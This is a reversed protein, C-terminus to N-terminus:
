HGMVQGTLAAVVRELAMGRSGKVLIADGPRAWAATDAAAAAAHPYRWVQQAPFGAAIAEDAIWRALEGVCVLGQWSGAAVARGVERHHAEGATGLERMEGLVLVRRPAGPMEAFTRLAGLMAPLNANYADNIVTFGNAESKQWRMPPLQVHQLADSLAEWPVDAGRALAVALLLNTAHHRGSLGTRLRASRGTARERLEVEGTWADRVRGFYDADDHTLSVTVVRARPQRRLYDFHAGDADLVVFGSAPVARLLDAKEYAIAAEVGFHEIHAPGVFTVVAADPQLVRCLAAIEGPHNSGLEFIGRPLDAPTALLCLPLGIDNNFNGTTAAAPGAARFCAAIFEKTTTKGVSGTVGAVFTRWTRRYAAAMASLAVRTDEVCLVPISPQPRSARAGPSQAWDRCVMAAAAGHAAAQAVFDHGDLREGRIAVYLGGPPMKQGNNSVGRVATPPGDWAGGSWRALQDPPFLPLQPDVTTM